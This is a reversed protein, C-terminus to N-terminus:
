GIIILVYLDDTSTSCLFLDRRGAVATLEVAAAAEEL